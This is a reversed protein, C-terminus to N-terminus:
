SLFRLKAILNSEKMFSTSLNEALTNVNERIIRGIRPSIQFEELSATYILALKNITEAFTIFSHIDGTLQPSAVNDSSPKISKLYDDIRDLANKFLNKIKVFEDKEVDKRINFDDNKLLLIHFSLTNDQEIHNLDMVQSNNHEIYRLIGDRITSQQQFVGM